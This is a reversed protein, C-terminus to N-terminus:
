NKTFEEDESSTAILEIKHSDIKKEEVNENLIQINYIEDKRNMEYTSRHKIFKKKM